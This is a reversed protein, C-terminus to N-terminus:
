SLKMLNKDNGNGRIAPPELPRERKGRAVSHNWIALIQLFYTWVFHKWSKKCALKLMIVYSGNGTRKRKTNYIQWLTATLLNVLLTKVLKKCAVYKGNRTMAHEAYQFKTLCNCACTHGTLKVFEVFKQWKIKPPIKNNLGVTRWVELLGENKPPRRYM